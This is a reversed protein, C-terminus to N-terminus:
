CLGPLMPSGMVWDSSLTCNSSFLFSFIRMPRRDWPSDSDGLIWFFASYYNFTDYDEGFSISFCILNSSSRLVWVSREGIVLWSSILTSAPCSSSSWECESWDWTLRGESGCSRCAELEFDGMMVEVFSTFSSNGSSISIRSSFLDASISRLDSKYFRSHFLCASSSVSYMIFHRTRSAWCGINGGRTMIGAFCPEGM